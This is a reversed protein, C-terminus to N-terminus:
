IRYNIVKKSNLEYENDSADDKPRKNIKYGENEGNEDNCVNDIKHYNQQWNEKRMINLVKKWSLQEYKIENITINTLKNTDYLCKQYSTYIFCNNLEVTIIKLHM